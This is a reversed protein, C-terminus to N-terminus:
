NNLKYIIGKTNKITALALNLSVVSVVVFVLTLTILFIPLSEVVSMIYSQWYSVLLSGDSFLLSVYDSLGSQYYDRVLNIFLFAVVLVSVFSVSFNLGIKIISGKLEEKRIKKIISIKLNKKPELIDFLEVKDIMRKRIRQNKLNPHM